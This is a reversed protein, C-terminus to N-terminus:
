YFDELPDVARTIEFNGQYSQTSFDETSSCIVDRLRLEIVALEPRSYTKKKM